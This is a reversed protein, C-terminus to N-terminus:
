SAQARTEFPDSDVKKLAQTVYARSFGFMRAIDARRLNQNDEMMEKFAEGRESKTIRRKKPLVEPIQKSSDIIVVHRGRRQFCVPFEYRASRATRRTVQVPLWDYGLTLVPSSGTRMNNKQGLTSLFATTKGRITVDTGRIVIEDILHNVYRKAINANPAFFLDKLHAQVRRTSEQGHISPPIPKPAQQQNGATTRPCMARAFDRVRGPVGPLSGARAAMM